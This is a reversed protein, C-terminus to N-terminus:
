LRNRGHTQSILYRELPSIFHVAALFLSTIANNGSFGQLTRGWFLRKSFTRKWEESYEKEIKNRENLSIEKGNFNRLIIESLIKASHVAMAMGNGCLPTILGASDGSLMLHNEICSKKDFYIENIVLPEPYIFRANRFINRIIPNIFLKKEEIESISKFNDSKERRFLYCLNYKSDEIKAIGCYGGPFNDLGIENFAYDTEIHYKVGMYRTHQRIFDRNLKKDLTDRKGYGGIVFTSQYNGNSSSVEFINNRFIIDGVRCNEIIEAGTSRAIAALKNDMTYRSIGFGGMDLDIFYNKGASSSIRLRNIKSAGHKFPDFGHSVFFDLVENSVYEGCVKHFPFTKKELLLVKLGGKSLLIAGTLGALGGGVIIVDYQSPNNQM